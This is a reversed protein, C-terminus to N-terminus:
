RLRGAGPVARRGPRTAARRPAPSAATLPAERNAGDGRRLWATDPRCAETAGNGLIGIPQRELPPREGNEALERHPAPPRPHALGAVSDRLRIRQAERTLGARLKTTPQANRGMRLLGRVTPSPRRGSAGRRATRRGPSSKAPRPSRRSAAARRPARPSGRPGRAAVRLWGAPSVPTPPVRGGRAPASSDLDGLAEIQRDLRDVVMHRRDEPEVNPIPALRRRDRDDHDERRGRPLPGPVLQTLGRRYRM